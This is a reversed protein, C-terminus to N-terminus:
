QLRAEVCVWMRYSAAIFLLPKESQSGAIRYTVFCECVSVFYRIETCIFQRRSRFIQFGFRPHPECKNFQLIDMSITVVSEFDQFCRKRAIAAAKTITTQERLFSEGFRFIYIM